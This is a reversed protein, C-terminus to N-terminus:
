GLAVGIWRKNATYAPSNTRFSRTNHWVSHSRVKSDLLRFAVMIGALSTGAVLYGPYADTHFDFLLSLVADPPLVKHFM